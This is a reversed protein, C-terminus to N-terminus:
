RTPSWVPRAPRTAVHPPAERRVRPSATAAPAASAAPNPRWTSDIVRDTHEAPPIAPTSDATTSWGDSPEGPQRISIERDAQLQRGDGTTYRVFLRLPGSSPRSQPWAMKLFLSGGAWMRAIQDTTFDWRALRAVDGRPALAPDILVVSIPGPRPVIQGDADRPQVVVTLGDDGSAGDDDYGSTLRPDLTVAVVEADAGPLWRATPSGLRIEASNSARRSPASFDAPLSSGPPMPASPSNLGRLRSTTPPPLDFGDDSPPLIEPLRFPPAESDPDGSSPPVRFREPLEGSPLAEDPLTIVPPAGTADYGPDGFRGSSPVPPLNFEDGEGLKARLSEVERRSKELEYQNDWLTSELRRMEDELGAVHQRSRNCGAPFLCAFCALSAAASAWPKM